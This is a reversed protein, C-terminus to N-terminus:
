AGAGAKRAKPFHRNRARREQAATRAAAYGALDVETLVHGSQRSLALDAELRQLCLAPGEQIGVGHRRFLGLDASVTFRQPKQNGATGDFKYERAGGVQEFGMYRFQM